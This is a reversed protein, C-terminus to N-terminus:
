GWPDVGSDESPGVTQEQIGEQAQKQGWKEKEQGRFHHRGVPSSQTLGLQPKLGMMAVAGM